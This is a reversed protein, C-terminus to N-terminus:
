STLLGKQVLVSTMGCHTATAPGSMISAAATRHAMVLRPWCTCKATSLTDRICALCCALHRCTSQGLYMQSASAECVRAKVFMM